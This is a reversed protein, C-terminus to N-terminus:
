LNAILRKLLSSLLHSEEPTFGALAHINADILIPWAVRVMAQGEITISITAARRDQASPERSILGAEELKSLANTMAPQAIGCAKVLDRQLMTPNHHLAMLPSLHAFPLGHPRLMADVHRNFIKAAHNTLLGPADAPSHAEPLTAAQNPYKKDSM